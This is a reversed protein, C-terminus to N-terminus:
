EDRGYHVRRYPISPVTRSIRVDIVMPGPKAVWEKVATRLQDNQTVFAGRGGMAKAVAGLDPTPIVSTMADMNKADLKYYEAGLCENNMVVVLLPMKYRVATEFEALHMLYSADGDILCLPSNNSAVIAGMAAPLMQGICGFFHGAQNLARHKTMMMSSIGSTMGSGSLVGVSTPLLEELVMMSERPDVTGPDLPFETRDATHNQLKAKVDPTRYGTNKHGKSALLKELEEVAIRADSHIYVDAFKGNAMALHPQSDIQIYKANPYLYGNEITHRNLSAGVGIVVDAEEMLKMATRTAYLGSIGAHYDNENLFTKALLSTALLAGIREGLKLVAPGAGAWQAGRGVVIVPHKASGIVDAARELEAANPQVRGPKFFEGSPRYPEDDDFEKQQVDMPCSLMIPRRELKALYFAKRVCEDTQDANQLRVFGAECAEAFRSQDLYQAYEPDTWPYEGCFAVIPSRARAATVFATALQTVGPGCTATAVGPTNSTRAFGDAMGLGAGEHRVEHVKIGIKHLESVWYMNGDGMMGFTATIGEGKFAQALRQYVKM